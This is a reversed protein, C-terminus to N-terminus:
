DIQRKRMLIILFVLLLLSYLFRPYNEEIRILDHGILTEMVISPLKGVFTVLIFDWFRMRSVAAAFTIVGSPILPTLRALFLIVARRKRSAENFRKLWIWSEQKVPRIRGLGRRYLWFSVGAGLVEGSLSIWFGPILGFVVANAGSLFLTPVVGLIAIMISLLLSVLIAWIGFSRLWEALVDVQIFWDM